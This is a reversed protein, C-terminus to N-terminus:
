TPRLAERAAKLRQSEVQEGQEIARKELRAFDFGHFQPWAEKMAALARWLAEKGKIGLLLGELAQLLGVTKEGSVSLKPRGLKEVMWAGAKRLSSEKVELASLLERLQDQDASIEARLEKCFQGIPKGQCTEILHDLLELAGVSGALHDNLYIALDDNAMACQRDSKSETM